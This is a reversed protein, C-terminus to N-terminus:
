ARRYVLCQGPRQIPDSHYNLWYMQPQAELDSSAFIQFDSHVLPTRKLGSFALTQWEWIQWHDIHPQQMLRATAVFTFTNSYAFFDLPVHKKSTTSSQRYSDVGSSQSATSSERSGSGATGMAELWSWSWSWWSHYVFALRYCILTPMEV